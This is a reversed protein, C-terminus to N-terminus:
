RSRLRPVLYPRSYCRFLFGAYPTEVLRKAPKEFPPSEGSRSRRGNETGFLTGALANGGFVAFVAIESARTM